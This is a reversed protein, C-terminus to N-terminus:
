SFFKRLFLPSANSHATWPTPPTMSGQLHELVTCIHYKPDHNLQCPPSPNTTPSSSRPDKSRPHDLRLSEIIGTIIYQSPLQQFWKLKFCLKVHFVFPRWRLKFQKAAQTKILYYLEKSFIRHFPIGTPKQQCHSGTITWRM